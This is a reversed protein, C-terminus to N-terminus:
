SYNENASIPVRTCGRGYIAIESRGIRKDTNEIRLRSEIKRLRGGSRSIMADFHLDYTIM